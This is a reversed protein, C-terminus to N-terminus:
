LRFQEVQKHLAAAMQGVKEALSVMEEVSSRVQVASAAMATTASENKRADAEVEAVLGTVAEVSGLMQEATAANEESIASLQVTVNVVQNSAAAIEESAASISEVQLHTEAVASLIRELAEGAKRSLVVGQQVDRTGAEMTEVVANAGHRLGEIRGTIEGAASRSREALRRVESAVVAFGKGHEGVRAAEIAANLALLDTQGAIDTILQLIEDVHKLSESLHRLKEAADLVRARVQDMGEASLQVAQSGDEAAQRTRAAAGAVVGASEAVQDIAMAMQQVIEAASEVEHAQSTAATAVQRAAEELERVARAGTAVQATQEEATLRVAEIQAASAETAESSERAGTELRGVTADLSSATAAMTQVMQRLRTAMDNYARSIQGVEDASAVLVPGQSLDGRAIAEMGQRLRWLPRVVVLSFLVSAAVAVLFLPVTVQLTGTLMHATLHEVQQPTLGADLAAAEFGRWVVFGAALVPLVAWTVLTATTRPGFNWQLPNFLRSLHM